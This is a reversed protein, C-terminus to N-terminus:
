VHARGIQVGDAPAPLTQADGEAGEPQQAGLRGVAELLDDLAEPTAAHLAIRAYSTDYKHRGVDIQEIYFEADLDMVIDMVQSLIHSDIIHGHLEITSAHPLRASPTAEKM